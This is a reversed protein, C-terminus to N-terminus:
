VASYGGDVPLIVGTLWRADASALFFAAGAIDEVEGLRAMPTRAELTALREPADWMDRTM